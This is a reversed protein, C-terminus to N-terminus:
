VKLTWGPIGPLLHMVRQPKASYAKWDEALGELGQLNLMLAIGISQSACGPILLLLHM